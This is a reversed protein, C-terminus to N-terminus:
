SQTVHMRRRSAVPPDADDIPTDLVQSFELGYALPDMGGSTQIVGVIYCEDTANAPDIRSCAFTHSKVGATGISIGLGTDSGYTGLNAGANSVRCFHVEEWVAGMLATIVEINVTADGAEWTTDNPQNPISQIMFSAQLASANHSVTKETTGLTGGSDCQSTVPTPALSAGSCAALAGDQAATDTCNASYLTV